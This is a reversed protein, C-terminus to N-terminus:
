SGGQSQAFVNTRSIWKFSNVCFSRCINVYCSFKGRMLNESTVLYPINHNSEYLLTPKTKSFRVDTLTENLYIEEHGTQSVAVFETESTSLSVNDQRQGKWSIPCAHNIILIFGTRSQHTDTDGAQDEDV